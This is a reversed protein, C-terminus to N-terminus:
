ISYKRGEKFVIYSDNFLKVLVSNGYIEFEANLGNSIQHIKGDMLVSVGGMQNRFVVIDNKIAYDKVQYKALEFKQGNQLAYTLGNEEWIAVGDKVDWYRAGFNSITRKNGGGYFMLDGNQNEYLVFGNGAKFIPMHFDEVDIFEGKDFVAFTGTMPDNFAVIDTGAVFGLPNHWVDLEYIKGQWFIKNVDGNDRFAVVNEGVMDPYDLDGVSTYLTHIEGRYYANVSNYRLDEFVVLSDRLWYKGATYCLTRKHGSDWMNLTQGVKWILLNDSVEYEVNVNSLTMSTNGDYVKLNGRIDIYGVVNDGAKFGKIEQFEIQRFFGNQFSKFYRSFDILPVVNQANALSTFLLFVSLITIKM